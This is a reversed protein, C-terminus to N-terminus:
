NAVKASPSRGPEWGNSLSTFNSKWWAAFESAGPEKPESGWLVMGSAGAKYSQEWYMTEDQDSMLANPAGHYRHWTYAWVPPPETKGSCKRPVEGAIRVAEQM